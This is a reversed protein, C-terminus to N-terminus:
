KIRYWTTNSAKYEWQGSTNIALTTLAGKLTQGANPSHTLATITQSSLITVKQKDVPSAPMTITGTAITGAPEIIYTGTTNGITNSFGTAPTVYEQTHYRQTLTHLADTLHYYEASTGGQINTLDNHNRTLISTINSATFDIGSWSVTTLSETARNRILRFWEEWTYSGWPDRVPAPPINTTAM